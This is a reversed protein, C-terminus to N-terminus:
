NWNRRLLSAAKKGGAAALALARTKNHAVGVYKVSGGPIVGSGSSSICRM